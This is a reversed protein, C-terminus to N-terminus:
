HLRSRLAENEAMVDAAGLLIEAREVRLDGIEELLRECEAEALIARQMWAISAEAQGKVAGQSIANAIYADESDARARRARSNELGVAMAGTLLGAFAYAGAELEGSVKHANM